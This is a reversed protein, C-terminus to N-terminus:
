ALWDRQDVLMEDIFFFISTYCQPVDRFRHADAAKM